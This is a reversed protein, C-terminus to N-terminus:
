KMSGKVFSGITLNKEGKLNDVVKKGSLYGSHQMIWKLVKFMKGRTVPEDNVELTIRKLRVGSGFHKEFDGPQVKKVSSPDNIDDFTVLLPLYQFPIEVDGRLSPIAAIAEKSYYRGPLFEDFVRMALDEGYKLVAFLYRDGPLKVVVAEGRQSAHSRGAQPFIRPFFKVKIETTSSGSYIKGGAEVEVTMKQHWIITPYKWQFYFYLGAFLAFVIFIYKMGM